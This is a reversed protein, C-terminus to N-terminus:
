FYFENQILIGFLPQIDLNLSTLCYFQNSLLELKMFIAKSQYLCILDIYPDDKVPMIDIIQESSYHIAPSKAKLHTENDVTGKLVFGM